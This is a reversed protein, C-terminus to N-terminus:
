SILSHAENKNLCLNENIKTPREDVTIQVIRNLSNIDEIEKILFQPRFDIEKLKDIKHWKFLYRNGEMGEFIGDKKFLCSNKPLDVLYSFGLEHYSQHNFNFFDESIIALRRKCIRVGLEEKLERSIAAETSELMETRGGPLLWFDYGKITHILVSDRSQNLIIASVRFNFKADGEQYSIM